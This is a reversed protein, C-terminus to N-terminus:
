AAVKAPLAWIWDPFERWRTNLDAQIKATDAYIFRIDKLWQEEASLFMEHEAALAQDQQAVAYRRALGTMQVTDDPAAVPRQNIVNVNEGHKGKDERLFAYALASIIATLVALAIGYIIYQM